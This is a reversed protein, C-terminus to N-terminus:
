VNGVFSCLPIWIDTLKSDHMAYFNITIDFYGVSSMDLMHEPLKAGFM